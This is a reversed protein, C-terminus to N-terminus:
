KSEKDGEPRKMQDTIAAFPRGGRGVGLGFLSSNEYREKFKM